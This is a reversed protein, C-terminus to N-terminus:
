AWALTRTPECSLAVPLWHVVRREGRLESQTGSGGERTTVPRPAGRALRADVLGERGLVEGLGETATGSGRSPAAAPPSRRRGRGVSGQGGDVSIGSCGKGSSPHLARRDFKARAVTSTSFSM